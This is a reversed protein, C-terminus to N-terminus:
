PRPAPPPGLLDPPPAAPAFDPMAPPPAPEPAAAPGRGRSAPAPDGPGTWPIAPASTLAARPPPAAPLSPEGPAVGAAAPAPVTRLALPERSQTRNLALAASIADRAEPPPREPRPPVSGLSPRPRDMGPPPLRGADAEGSVTRYIEVPNIEKPIECGPLALALVGAGLRRWWGGRM